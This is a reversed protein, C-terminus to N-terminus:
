MNPRIPLLIIDSHSTLLQCGVKVVTGSWDQDCFCYFTPLIVTRNLVEAM